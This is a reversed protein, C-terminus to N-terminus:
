EELCQTASQKDRNGLCEKLISNKGSNLLVGWGQGGLSEKM